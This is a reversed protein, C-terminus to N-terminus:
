RCSFTFIINLILNYQQISFRQESFDTVLSAAMRDLFTQLSLPGTFSQQLEAPSLIYGMHRMLKAYSNIDKIVGDKAFLNFSQTLDDRIDEHLKDAM